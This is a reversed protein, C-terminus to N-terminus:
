TLKSFPCFPEKCSSSSQHEKCIRGKESFFLVKNIETKPKKVDKKRKLMYISIAAISTLTCVSISYKLM